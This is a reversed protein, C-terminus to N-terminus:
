APPRPDLEKSFCLAFPDDLYPPYPPVPLFGRSRFLGQAATHRVGTELYLVRTGLGASLTEAAAMLASGVGSRRAGSRVYVRKVEYAYPPVGLVPLPQVAVCGVADAGDSRALLFRAGPDVGARYIGALEPYRGLHERHSAALLEDLDARDDATCPHVELM